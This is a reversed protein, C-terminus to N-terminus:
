GHCIVNENNIVFRVDPLENGADQLIFAKDRAGRSVAVVRQRMDGAASGIEDEEVDPQLAAPEVPQLQEIRHLALMGFERDHHNRTMAVDFSGHGGDLLPCVVEDLLRELGVPQHQNGLARQLRRPELAFDLREFLKRRGCHHALRRRHIL